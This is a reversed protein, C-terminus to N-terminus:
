KRRQDEKDLEAALTCVRALPVDDALRIALRVAESQSIIKGPASRRLKDIIAIDQPTARLTLRATKDLQPSRKPTKTPKKSANALPKKANM